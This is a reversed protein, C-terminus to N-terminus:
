SSTLLRRLRCLLSSPQRGDGTLLHLPHMRHAADPSIPVVLQQKSWGTSHSLDKEDTATLQWAALECALVCPMQHSGQGCTAGLKSHLRGGDTFSTQAAQLRWRSTACQGAQLRWGCMGGAMGAAEM